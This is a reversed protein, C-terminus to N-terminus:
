VGQDPVSQPQTIQYRAQEQSSIGQEKLGVAVEPNSAERQQPSCPSSLLGPPFAWSRFVSLDPSARVLSGAM